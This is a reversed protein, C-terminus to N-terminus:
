KGGYKSTNRKFQVVVTELTPTTCMTIYIAVSAVELPTVLVKCPIMSKQRLNVNFNMIIDSDGIEMIALSRLM